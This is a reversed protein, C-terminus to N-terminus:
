GGRRLGDLWSGFHSDFSGIHTETETYYRDIEIKEEKRWGHTEHMCEALLAPLVILRLVVFHCGLINVRLFAILFLLLLLRVREGEREM